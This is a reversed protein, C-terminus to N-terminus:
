PWCDISRHSLCEYAQAKTIHPFCTVLISDVTEGNQLLGIADHV